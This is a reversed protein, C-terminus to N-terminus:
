CPGKMVCMSGPQPRSLPGYRCNYLMLVILLVGGVFVIANGVSSRGFLGKGKGSYRREVDGYLPIDKLFVGPTYFDMALECRVLMDRVAQRLDGNEHIVHLGLAVTLSAIAVFFCVIYYHGQLDITSIATAGAVYGASTLVLFKNERDEISALETSHKRYAEHLSNLRDPNKSDPSASVPKDEGELFKHDM